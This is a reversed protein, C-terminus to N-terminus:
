TYFGPYFSYPFAPDFPLKVMSLKKLVPNYVQKKSKKKRFREIQVTDKNIRSIYDVPILFNSGDPEWFGTSSVELFCIIEKDQDIYFSHIKGLVNGQEDLLKRKRIDQNPDVFNFTTDKLKVFQRHYKEEHRKM